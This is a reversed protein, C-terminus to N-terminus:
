VRRLAEAFRSASDAWTPLRARARRAGAALQRRLDQDTILRELAERLASASGPEVLLGADAPVTEPIAGAQTGLVPLGRALAEAYAMGYGEFLSPLVFLDAGEYLTPMDAHPVEGLLRVRQALGAADIHRRLAAVTDPSRELNGACALEWDLHKLGALAEVLLLHGKRPTVTGVCLLQLPGQGSGTALEAPATGPEIVDIDGATVGYGDLLRATAPSTVIVRRVQRLADTESRRLAAAQAADLGTELALPHHLLAILRLRDRHAAAIDPMAGLALGDILVRAGADIEALAHAADALAEPTPAPFSTHLSRVRLDWGLARLGQVIHRDYLTGGTAIDLDGPLLLHLTSM